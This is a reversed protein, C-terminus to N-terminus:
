PQFLLQHPSLTFNYTNTQDTRGASTNIYRDYAFLNFWSEACKTWISQSYVSSPIVGGASSSRGEAEEDEKNPRGGNGRDLEEQLLLFLEESGKREVEMDIVM